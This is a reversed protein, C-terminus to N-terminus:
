YRCFLTRKLHTGRNSAECKPFGKVWPCSIKDRYILTKPAAM